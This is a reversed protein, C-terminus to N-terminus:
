VEDEGQFEYPEIQLVITSMFYRTGTGHEGLLMNIFPTMLTYRYGTRVLIVNSVGGADFGRSDINGDADYQPQYSDYSGFTGINTVEIDVNDCNVLAAAHRCIADRFMQEQGAPDSTAQQIQGTRILRAASGTAGELISATSFMIAMEIISMTLTVFPISMFAFEIATTGSLDHLWKKFVGARM